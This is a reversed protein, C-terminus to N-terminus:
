SLERRAEKERAAELMLDQATPVSNLIAEADATISALLVKRLAELRKRDLVALTADREAYIEAKAEKLRNQLLQNTINVNATGYLNNFDLEFGAVRANAMLAERQSQFEQMLELASERFTREQDKPVADM